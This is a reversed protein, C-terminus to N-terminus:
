ITCQFVYNEISTAITLTANTGVLQWHVSTIPQNNFRQNINNDSHYNKGFGKVSLDLSITKDDITIIAIPEDSRKYRNQYEIIYIANNNCLYAQSRSSDSVKCNCACGSVFVLTLIILVRSTIKCYPFM